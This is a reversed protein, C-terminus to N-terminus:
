VTLLDRPSTTLSEAGATTVLVTDEIRVGGRDPLYVGPEITVVMAAALADRSRAGLAPAEHIELGVGHGLGHSFDSGHGADTIVARARADVDRGTADPVVADRGAAQARRVLAHLDLQWDAPQGLVVTRTLDSHYGDVVAGFDCKILDGSELRRDTPRHHPVASNPGGAVITPFAPTESGHEWMCAELRHAVSRETEGARVATMVDTFAADAIACAARIHAVESADKVSRLEEVLGPVATLTVGEAAAALADYAAVSVAASDFGLRATGRLRARDVLAAACERDVVLEVDACERGAQTVYRGDTALLVGSRDVLLAANSGTFGTLYRVNVIATVLIGDCHADLRALLRRRRDDYDPAATV